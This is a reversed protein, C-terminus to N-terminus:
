GRDGGKTVQCAPCPPLALADVTPFIRMGCVTEVPGHGRYRGAVEGAVLHNAEPLRAAPREVARHYWRAYHPKCLGRARAVDGCPCLALADVAASM